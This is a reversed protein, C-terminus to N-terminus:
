IHHWKCDGAPKWMSKAQQFGATLIVFLSGRVTPCQLATASLMYRPSATVAVVILVLQLETSEYSFPQQIFVVQMFKKMSAKFALFTSSKEGREWHLFRISISLIAKTVPSICSADRLRNRQNAPTYLETFCSSRKQTHLM